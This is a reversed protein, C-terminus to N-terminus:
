NKPPLSILDIFRQKEKLFEESIIELETKFELRKEKLILIENQLIDIKKQLSQSVTISPLQKSLKAHTKLWALEQQNKQKEKRKNQLSEDFHTLEALLNQYLRDTKKIRQIQEEILPSHHKGKVTLDLPKLFPSYM